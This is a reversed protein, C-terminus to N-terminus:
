CKSVKIILKMWRWLIWLQQVGATHVRSLTFLHKHESFYMLQTYLVWIDGTNKRYVATFLESIGWPCVCVCPVSLTETCSFKCARVCKMRDKRRLLLFAWLAHHCRLWVNSKDQLVCVCVFVFDSILTDGGIGLAFYRWLGDIICSAGCARLLHHSM